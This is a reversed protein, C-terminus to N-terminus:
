RFRIEIGIAVKRTFSEQRSVIERAQRNAGENGYTFALMHDLPRPKQRECFKPRSVNYIMLASLVSHGSAEQRGTPDLSPENSGLEAVGASVEVLSFMGQCIAAVMASNLKIAFVALVYSGQEFHGGDATASNLSDGAVLLLSDPLTEVDGRVIAEGGARISPGKLLLRGNSTRISALYQAQHM